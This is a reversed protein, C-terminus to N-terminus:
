EKSECEEATVLHKVKFVMGRVCDNNPRIVTQHLRRLGLAYLTREQDKEYGIPSRKLTIRLYDAM